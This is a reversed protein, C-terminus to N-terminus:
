TIFDTINDNLYVERYLRDAETKVKDRASEIRGFRFLAFKGKFVMQALLRSLTPPVYYILHVPAVIVLVVPYLFGRLVIIALVTLSRGLWYLFAKHQLNQIHTELQKM